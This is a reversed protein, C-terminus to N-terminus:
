RGKEVFIMCGRGADVCGEINVDFRSIDIDFLAECGGENVICLLSGKDFEEVRAMLQPLLKRALYRREVGAEDIAMNYLAAIAEMNDGVELPLPCYIIKGEGVELEAIEGVGRDVNVYKEEEFGINFEEGGISILEDRAVSKREGSLGFKGLREVPRVYEDQGVPGTILLTGGDKVYQVLKVWAKENLRMASPLIVLKPRGLKDLSYEGCARAEVRCFHHLAKVAKRTAELACERSTFLNSYPVIVCVDEEKRGCFEEGVMAVFKAVNRIVDAEKKETGDARLAGIACENEDTMHCNTNWIWQIVGACGAAFAYVIKRELLRKCDEESRRPLGGIDEVFMIGTEEILNPVGSIKTVICDWLLYDNKWWTHNCTFDVVDYHFQPAPSRYTGGEDQGVTVLGGAGVEELAKRMRRVWKKFVDQGFLAFDVMKLPYTGQFIFHKKFDDQRPLRLADEETPTRLAECARQANGHREVVWAKWAREEFEDWNPMLEWLHEYNEFSPENILDWIVCDSKGVRGAIAKIYAEQARLAQEDLYHNVGGWREPLFAFFTFIVPMRHRAAVAVFATIARLVRENVMGVDPMIQRYGTWIGTRVCNIGAERMKEFDRDWRYPNHYIYKRHFLSDMYTTGVIPYSKGDVRLYDQGVEIRMGARLMDEEFVFFGSDYSDLIRGDEDVFEARIHYLGRKVFEEEFHVEEYNITPAIEMEVISEFLREGERDCAIRISGRRKRYSVVRINCSVAEGPYFLAYAPEVVMEFAGVEVWGIIERLLEV